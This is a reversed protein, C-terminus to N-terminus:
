LTVLVDGQRSALAAELGYPGAMTPAPGLGVPPSMFILRRITMTPILAVTMAPPPVAAAAATM